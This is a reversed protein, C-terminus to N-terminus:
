FTKKWGHDAFIKAAADGKLYDLFADLDANGAGKATEAVSVDRYIALEPEVPVQGAIDPNDTQWHNWILWADIAEDEIWRKKAEGSNPASFVINDRFKKMNAVDRTRGIVDEWMGVQGAGDVVMVAVDDEILSMAGEIGKPNGPRVLITSPRLYLPEVTDAVIEGHAAIFDDMMNQSGSFLADADAKADDMWKSSPGATIEVTIGTEAEYATAIEKMAPAPGGPGYLKLGEAAAALSSSLLIAIALTTAKHMHRNM